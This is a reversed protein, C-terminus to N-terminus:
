LKKSAAKDTWHKNHCKYLKGYQDFPATRDQQATHSEEPKRGGKQLIVCANAILVDRNRIHNMKNDNSLKISTIDCYYPQSNVKKTQKAM